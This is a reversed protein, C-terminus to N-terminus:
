VKTPPLPQQTEQTQQETQQTQEQTQETSAQTTATGGQDSVTVQAKGKYSGENSMQDVLVVDIPYVGATDPAQVSGVYASPDDLSPNLQTINGNFVVAAQSLSAESYVKVNIPTGPKIGSTPDLSIQDATPPTTDISFVVTNSTGKATQAADFMVAYVTHKGDNM